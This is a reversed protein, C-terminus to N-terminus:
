SYYKKYLRYFSFLCNPPIEVLRFNSQSVLLKNVIEQVGENLTKEKTLPDFYATANRKFQLLKQQYTELDGGLEAVRGGGIALAHYYRSILRKVPHCVSFKMLGELEIQSQPVNM